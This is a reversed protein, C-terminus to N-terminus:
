TSSSFQIFKLQKLFYKERVYYENRIKGRNNESYSLHFCNLLNFQYIPSCDMSKGNNQRIKEWKENSIDPFVAHLQLTTKVTLNEWCCSVLVMLTVVASLRMLGVVFLSKYIYMLCNYMYYILWATHQKANRKGVWVTQVIHLVSSNTELPQDISFTLQTNYTSTRWRERSVTDKEVRGNQSQIFAIPNKYTYLM